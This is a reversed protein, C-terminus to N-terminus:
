GGNKVVATIVINKESVRERQRRHIFIWFKIKQGVAEKVNGDEVLM